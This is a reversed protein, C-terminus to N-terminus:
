NCNSRFLLWVCQVIMAKQTCSFEHKNFSGGAHGHRSIKLPELIHV